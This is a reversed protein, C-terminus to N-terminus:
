CRSFVLLMAAVWVSGRRAGADNPSTRIRGRRASANKSALTNMKTVAGATMARVVCFGSGAAAAAASHSSMKPCVNSGADFSGNAEHWHSM